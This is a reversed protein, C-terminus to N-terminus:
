YQTWDDAGAEILSLLEDQSLPKCYFYGQHLNVGKSRLYQVQEPYEVGEAIMTIQATNCFDIIGDLVKKKISEQMITDVFMKDIKLIHFGFEQIYAFSGYGTGADDLEITAGQKALRKLVKKALEPSQFPERETIEFAFRMPTDLHCLEILKDIFGPRELQSPSVNFSFILSNYRPSHLKVMDLTQQIISLLLKDIIGTSEALPIFENPLMIDEGHDWRALVECHTSKGTQSDVILQFYPVIEGNSIAKSLRQPPPLSWSSNWVLLLTLLLAFLLSSTIGWIVAEKKIQDHIKETNFTISIPLTGITMSVNEEGLKVTACQRCGYSSFYLSWPELLALWKRDRYNLDMILQSRGDIVEVLSLNIGKAYQYSHIVKPFTAVIHSFGPRSTCVEQSKDIWGILRTNLDYFEEDRLLLITSENCEKAELTLRKLMKFTNDLQSSFENFFQIKFNKKFQYTSVSIILESIFIGVIATMLTSLALHLM